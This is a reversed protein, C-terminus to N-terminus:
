AAGPMRQGSNPVRVNAPAQGVAKILVDAVDDIAVVGSALGADVVAGPMGWVVSTAEDQAIVDGGAQRLARSGDLGDCGMGTLIVGLSRGGLAAVLSRMTVDVAPKCSQVPPGDDLRLCLETGRRGVIMHKGGPALWAGGAHPVDGERAERVALGSLGDLREALVRTFFPPMHQVILIPVPFEAPIRALVTALANPGGTSTGIFVAEIARPAAPRWTSALRPVPAPKPAAANAPASTAGRLPRRCLARIKEVVSQKLEARAENVDKASTPKAAYDSAGLALAELTTTAGRETLTSLMIVPLRPKRRRIAALTALGDMEPMEVDLTVIDPALADLKDLAERGNIAQGVVEFDPEARLVDTLVRRVIASDDVILVRIPTM